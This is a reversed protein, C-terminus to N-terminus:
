FLFTEVAHIRCMGEAGRLLLWLTHVMDIANPATYMCAHANLPFSFPLLLVGLLAPLYCAQVCWPRHPWAHTFGPSDTLCANHHSLSPPIHHSIPLPM